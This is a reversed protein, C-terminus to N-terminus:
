VWFFFLEPKFIYIILPFFHIFLIYYERLEIIRVSFIFWTKGHQSFRYLFLSYAARLFSIIIFFIILVLSWKLIRGILVIERIFNLSPPAGINLTIFIFWVLNLSPFIILLGKLIILNRTFFREYILNALCFLGSSCLGHSIIIILSGWVGWFFIRFIGVIIFRIHVISSYAILSKVDIQRLCVLGIYVSGLIRVSIFFFRLNRLNENNFLYFFRFFDM